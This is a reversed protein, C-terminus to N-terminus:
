AESVSMEAVFQLTVIQAGPHEIEDDPLEAGEHGPDDPPFDDPPEYREVDEGLENPIQTAVEM